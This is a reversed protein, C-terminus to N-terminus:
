QPSRGTSNAALPIRTHDDGPSYSRVVASPRRCKRSAIAAAAPSDSLIESPHPAPLQTLGAPTAGRDTAVQLDLIEKEEATLDPPPNRVLDGLGTGESHVEAGGLRLMEVLQKIQLYYGPEEAHILGIVRVAASPTRTCWAM